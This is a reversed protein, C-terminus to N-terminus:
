EKSRGKMFEEITITTIEDGIVTDGTELDGESNIQIGPFRTEKSSPGDRDVMDRIVYSTCCNECCFSRGHLNIVKDGRPIVNFCYGCQTIVNDRRERLQKVLKNAWEEGCKADCLLHGKVILFQTNKSVYSGCNVCIFNLADKDSNSLM